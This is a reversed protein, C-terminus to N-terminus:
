ISPGGGLNFLGQQWALGAGFFQAGLIAISQNEDTVAIIRLSLPFYCGDFDNNVFTGPMGIRLTNM